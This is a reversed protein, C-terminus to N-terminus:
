RLIFHPNAWRLYYSSCKIRSSVTKYQSRVEQNQECAWAYFRSMCRHICQLTDSFVSCFTGSSCVNLSPTLTSWTWCFGFKLIRPPPCNTQPKKPQASPQLGLRLLSLALEKIALSVPFERMEFKSHQDKGSGPFHLLISGQHHQAAAAVRPLVVSLRVVMTSGFLPETKWRWMWYIVPAIGCKIM